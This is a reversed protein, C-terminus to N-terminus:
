SLYTFFFNDFVRFANNGKIIILLQDKKSLNKFGEVLTRESKYCYSSFFYGHDVRGVKISYLLLM